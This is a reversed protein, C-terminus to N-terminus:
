GARRRVMNRSLEGCGYYALSSFFYRGNSQFAAFGRKASNGGTFGMKKKCHLFGLWDVVFLCNKAPGPADLAFVGVVLGKFVPGMFCDFIFNDVLFPGLVNEEGM